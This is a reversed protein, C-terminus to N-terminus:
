PKWEERYDPHDAYPLALLRLTDCPSPVDAWGDQHGCTACALPPNEKHDAHPPVEPRHLEIIRRKAEVEALARKRRAALGCDCNEEGYELDGCWEPDRAAPCRHVESESGVFHKSPARREDEDFRERLFAILDDIVM